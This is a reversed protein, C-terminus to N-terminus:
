GDSSSADIKVTFQPLAFHRYCSSRRYSKERTLLQRGIAEVIGPVVSNGFQRYAQTDSVAIPLHDSFGTLRATERSTLKRPNRNKQAILIEDPSTAYHATLTRTAEDPSAIKFGFGNGRIRQRIRHSQLHRWMADSLTYKEEVQSELIQRLVTHAGQPEDPWRFRSAHPLNNRIGVVFLRVRRQPVWAQANVLHSYVSYGAEELQALICKWTRGGDHRILNPVNELIFFAPRKGRLIRIVESILRGKENDAFGEPVGFHRRASFGAISFPQCPFGAILIDHDPIKGVAIKRIDGEPENGFWAEYTKRAFKDSDCSFLCRGGCAELGLRFGGIECFLEIFSFSNVTNISRSQFRM